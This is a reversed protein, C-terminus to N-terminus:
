KFAELYKARSYHQLLAFDKRRIDLRSDLWQRITAALEPNADGIVSLASIQYSTIPQYPVVAAARKRTQTVASWCLAVAILIVLAAMSISKLAIFAAFTTLAGGCILRMNIANTLPRVVNQHFDRIDNETSLRSAEIRALLANLDDMPRKETISLSPLAGSVVANM